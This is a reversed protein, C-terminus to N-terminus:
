PVLGDSRVKRDKRRRIWSGIASFIYFGALWVILAVVLSEALIFFDEASPPKEPDHPKIIESLGDMWVPCIIAIGFLLALRRSWRAGHVSCLYAVGWLAIGAWFFIKHWM